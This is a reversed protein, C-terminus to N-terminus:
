LVTSTIPASFNDVMTSQFSRLVHTNNPSPAPAAMQLVTGIGVAQEGRAHTSVAMPGFKKAHGASARAARSRGLGNRIPKVEQAHIALLSKLVGDIRHIRRSLFCQSSALNVDRADLTDNRVLGVLADDVCDTFAQTNL